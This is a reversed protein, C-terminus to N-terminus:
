ALSLSYVYRGPDGAIRTTLFPVISFLAWLWPVRCGLWVITSVIRGGLAVIEVGVVIVPLTVQVM